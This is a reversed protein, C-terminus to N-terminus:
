RSAPRGHCKVLDQCLHQVQQLTLLPEGITREFNPKPEVVLMYCSEM